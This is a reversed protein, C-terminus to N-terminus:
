ITSISDNEKEKIIKDINKCFDDEAAYPTHFNHDGNHDFCKKCRYDGFNSSFYWENCERCKGIRIEKDEYFTQFETGYYFAETPSVLILHEKIEEVFLLSIKKNHPKIVGKSEMWMKHDTLYFDPRYVIGNSLRFTKPEYQWKIKLCDLFFAIKTEFISRMEIGKYITKIGILQDGKSM